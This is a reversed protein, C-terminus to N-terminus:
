ALAHISYPKNQCRAAIPILTGAARANSTVNITAIASTSTSSGCRCGAIRASRADM